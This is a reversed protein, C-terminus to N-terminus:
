CCRGELSQGFVFAVFAFQLEGLLQVGVPSVPQQDAGNSSSGSSNSSSYRQMAQELLKTKDLNM